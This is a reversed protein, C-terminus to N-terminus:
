SELDPEVNVMWSSFSHLFDVFSARHEPPFSGDAIAQDITEEFHHLWTARAAADVEFPFHRMRMRPPGFHQSFLPRGGLLQVFFAASKKSAQELPDPDKPFLDQIESAGLRQYFDSLLVFIGPEGMAVLLEVPPRGGQPPGGAPTYIEKTREHM